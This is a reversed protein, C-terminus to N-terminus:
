EVRRRTSREREWESVPLFYRASHSRLCRARRCKRTKEVRPGPVHMASHARSLLWLRMDCRRSRLSVRGQTRQDLPLPEGNMTSSQRRSLPPIMLVRRPRETNGTM